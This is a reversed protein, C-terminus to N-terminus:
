PQKPPGDIDHVVSLEFDFSGFIALDVAIFQAGIEMVLRLPKCVLVM